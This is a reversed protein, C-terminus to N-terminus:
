REGGLALGLCSSPPKIGTRLTFRMTSSNRDMPTSYALWFGSLFGRAHLQRFANTTAIIM